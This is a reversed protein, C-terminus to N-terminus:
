SLKATSDEVQVEDKQHEPEPFVVECGKAAFIAERCRRVFDHDGTDKAHKAVLFLDPTRVLAHGRLRAASRCKDTFHEHRHDPPTLRAANGFLVGKAESTVEERALDELLNTELQRMKDISIAKNDKGEAEGLCRGEPSVFVADFESGSDRYRNAECGLIKLADLIAVELQTGKAYLLRRLGDERQLEERLSAVRVQAEEIRKEHTLIETRLNKVAATAYRDDAAWAPPVEGAGPRLAAHLKRIATIFRIAVDSRTALTPPPVIVLAGTSGVDQILIAVDRSGDPTTM